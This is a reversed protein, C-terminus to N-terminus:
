AQSGIGLESKVEEWLSGTSPDMKWEEYAEIDQRASRLAELQEQTPM